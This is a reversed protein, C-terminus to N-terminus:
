IQIDRMVLFLVVIYFINALLFPESVMVDTGRKEDVRFQNRGPM